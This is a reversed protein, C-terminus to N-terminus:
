PYVTVADGIAESSWVPYAAIGAPAILSVSARLAVGAADLAYVGAKAIPLAIAGRAPVAVQMQTGSAASVTVSAAEDSDNVVHLTASAGATVAFMSSATITPAAAHWAYDGGASAQTAQWVASVIPVSGDVRVTYSGAELGPLEVDVPVGAALPLTIPGIAPADQGTATAVVMATADSAPSLVRVVTTAVDPDATVERAPVVVGPIVQQADPLAVAAQIDVGSPTITRIRNSQLTATVPAGKAPVRVVPNDAAVALGALPLM